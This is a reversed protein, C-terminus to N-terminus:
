EGNELLKRMYQILMKQEQDLEDLLEAIPEPATYKRAQAALIQTELEFTSGLSIEMFRKQDKASGRSCGEAINSPISVASKRCQMILGFREDDPFKDTIQYTLEVIKM